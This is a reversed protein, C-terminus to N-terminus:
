NVERQRDTFFFKLVLKGDDLLVRERTQSRPPFNEYNIFIRESSGPTKETTFTIEHGNELLVEKIRHGWHPNKSGPPRGLIGVHFDM